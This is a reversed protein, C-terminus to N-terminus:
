MYRLALYPIPHSLLDTLTLTTHNHATDLRGVVTALHGDHIVTDEMVRQLEAAGGDAGRFCAADNLRNTGHIIKM